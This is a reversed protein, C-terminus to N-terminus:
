QEGHVTLIDKAHPEAAITKYKETVVAYICIEGEKDPKVCPDLHFKQIDNPNSDRSLSTGLRVCRSQGEIKRKVDTLYNIRLTMESSINGTARCDVM